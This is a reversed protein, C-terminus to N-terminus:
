IDRRYFISDATKRRLKGYSVKRRYQQCLRTPKSPVRKLLVTGRHCKESQPPYLNTRTKARIAGAAMRRDPLTGLIGYASAAPPQKELPTAKELEHLDPDRRDQTVESDLAGVARVGGEAKVLQDGDRAIHRLIASITDLNGNTRDRSQEGHFAIGEITPM